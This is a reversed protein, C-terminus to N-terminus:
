RRATPSTSSGKRDPRSTLTPREANTALQLYRDALESLTERVSQTVAADAQRQCETARKRYVDTSSM